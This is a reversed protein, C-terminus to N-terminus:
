GVPGASGPDGAGGFLRHRNAQIVLFTAPLAVLGVVVYALLAVETRLEPVLLFTTAVEIAALAAVFRVLVRERVLAAALSGLPAGWVVVPVAALWLGFLDTSGAGPDADLQGDVIGYLGIGAVSVAAMVIVASPLARGPDVGVVVVLFLFVVINTGTGTLSALLGGAAAVAVLAVDLRPTWRLEDHVDVRGARDHARLHHVMLFSTTALVISFTAKVWPAAMTPPWFSESRDGAVVASVLLAGIGAVSGLVVARRHVPRRSAVISISAMTMGVAQISLGFTRAVPSPVELAKTFVPFAVTGGGVPSSGSLFSGFLMTAAAEWHGAVRGVWGAVVVAVIWAVTVTASLMWGLRPGTLLGARQEPLDRDGVTEEGVM